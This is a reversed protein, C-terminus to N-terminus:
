RKFRKYSNFIKSDSKERIYTNEVKDFEERKPKPQQKQAPASPRSPTELEKQKRKQAEFEDIKHQIKAMSKEHDFPKVM